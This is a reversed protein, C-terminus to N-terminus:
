VTKQLLRSDRNLVAEISQRVAAETAQAMDIINKKLEGLEKDFYREM